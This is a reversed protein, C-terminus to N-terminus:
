AVEMPREFGVNQRVSLGDGSFSSRIEVSTSLGIWPEEGDTLKVILGPEIIGGLDASLGMSLRQDYRSMAASLEAIGRQRCIIPDTFLPDVIMPLPKNGSTGTRKVNALVGKTGGSLYVSNEEWAYQESSALTLTFAEPMEINPTTKAMDWMSVPYRKKILLKKNVRDSQVFGGASGVLSNIAEIPSKKSYSFTNAPVIWDDLGFDISWDNPLERQILQQVNRDHTETYFSRPAFPSALSFALSRGSVESSRKNFARQRSMSRVVFRFKFGNVDAEFVDGRPTSKILDEADKISMTMSFSWVFSGRNTKARFSTIPLSAGDSLRKVDTTNLVVYVRQSPIIIGARSKCPEYGFWLQPVHVSLPCTFHLEGIEVHGDEDPSEPAQEGAVYGWNPTDALQWLNSSCSHLRVIPKPQPPEICQSIKQADKNPLGACAVSMGSSQYDNVTDVAGIDNAGEWDSCRNNTFSNVGNYAFESCSILDDAGSWNDILPSALREVEASAILVFSNKLKDAPSADSTTVRQLDDVSGKGVFAKVQLSKAPATASSVCNRVGRFTNADWKVNFIADIGGVTAVLGLKSTFAQQNKSEGFNLEADELLESFIIENNPM